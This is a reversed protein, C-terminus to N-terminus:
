ITSTASTAPSAPQLSLGDQLHPNDVVYVPDDFNVFDHTRVQFYVGFVAGAVLLAIWPRPAVHVDYSATEAERVRPASGSHLTEDVGTAFHERRAPPAAHEAHYIRRM